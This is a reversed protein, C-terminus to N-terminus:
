SWDRMRLAYQVNKKRNNASQSEIEVSTLTKVPHFVGADENSRIEEETWLPRYRLFPFNLKGCRFVIVTLVTPLRMEATCYPAGSFDIELEQLKELAQRSILLGGFLCRHLATSLQRDRLWNRTARQQTPKFQSLANKLENRAYRQMRVITTAKQVADSLRTM